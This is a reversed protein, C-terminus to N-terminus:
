GIRACCGTAIFEGAWLAMSPLVSCHVVGSEQEGWPGARHCRTRGAKGLVGLACQGEM